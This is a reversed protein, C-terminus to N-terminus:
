PLKRGNIMYWFHTRFGNREGRDIRAQYGKSSYIAEIAALQQPTPEHRYEQIVTTIILRRIYRETDYTDAYVGKPGLNQMIVDHIESGHIQFRHHMAKKIKVIVGKRLAVEIRKHAICSQEALPTNSSTYCNKCIGDVRWHHKVRPEKKDLELLKRAQKYKELEEDSTLYKDFKDRWYFQIGSRDIARYALVQLDLHANVKNEARIISSM